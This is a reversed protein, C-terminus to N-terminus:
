STQYDEPLRARTTGLHTALAVRCQHLQCDALEKAKRREEKAAVEPSDYLETDSPELPSYARRGHDAVMNDGQRRPSIIQLIAALRDIRSRTRATTPPASASM